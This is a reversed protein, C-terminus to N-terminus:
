ESGIGRYKDIISQLKRVKAILKPVASRAEAIFEMDCDQQTYTPEEDNEWELIELPQCIGAGFHPDYHGAIVWTPDNRGRWMQDVTYWPGPTAQSYLRELRELEDNTM